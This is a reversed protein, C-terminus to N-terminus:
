LKRAASLYVANLVFKFTGFSQGRFQPRFGFLVVKGLGHRAEVLLSRGLVAREGSLWGSALLDKSAYRAVSRTERAGKNFDPLLTIEFAQGGTSMAIADKPMGTALPHGAEVNIRLLSGPCYYGGGSSEEERGGGEGGRWPLSARVPLGFYQIPLESAADFAVLTGGDRVFDELASAGAASIGGTFEPRQLITLPEAEASGRGSLREGERTGHLISNASQSALLIVDYRSRLAGKRIEDNKLLKHPVRYHDLLWQTWGADMNATHPEYLAVRPSEIEWAAKGFEADRETLIRGEASWRVRTGKDLLDRLTLYAGNERLDAGSSAPFASVAELNASFPDEIRDVKVGMQLPLTWGAVDYPRKTPGTTGARLEPYKQPEMLDVLYPRFAQGALMVYSGEAYEIGNAKFPARARKVEIGAAHLRRLMELASSKDWQEAPAVYAFPKATRINTQAIEWAKYLFHEPRESALDLIAFDATLMYEIAERTGWRGGMWPRQYFVTPEKTPIGNGFREPFRSVEYKGPTGYGRGIATETLIGHMNHFAPVSRLGGNWWADFGFYSLIGPKNERAFREKMASGILNIGEMVPAPIHPNLPEAYPPVFIRAPFAPSQHQNYVIHPFWDQFLLKTVHKTEELNLMFWDRNNDHGAYKQYLWPLPALEYPTGANKRYWEVVMDLGDPNIVPIQILIVNRRIRATEADEATVMRYALEPAHQAPATETAHLGSDIWVIAKGESALKRAEEPTARGLALRQSIERYRDLQKLNAADSLFAAIMPRGNASTGFRILRIRDSAKALKEFYGTIETHNALRFDDGPTFGFHEKPLPVAATLTAAALSWVALSFAFTRRNMHFLRM